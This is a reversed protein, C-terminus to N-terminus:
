RRRPASSISGGSIKRLGTSRRAYGTRTPSTPRATQNISGDASFLPTSGSAQLASALATGVKSYLSAIETSGALNALTNALQQVIQQVALTTRLLDNHKGDAPDLKTVDTGAPLGLAAALQAATMGTDALLSTLPTAVASGAPAKLMGKFPFGTTADNGGTVVITGSCGAAFTFDGTSNTTATAEGADATGNKNTDCLVNSGSLYGDVAKGSSAVPTPTTPLASETSDGCASLSAAIALWLITQKKKFM